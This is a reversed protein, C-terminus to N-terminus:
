QWKSRKDKKIKEYMQLDVVFLSQRLKFKTFSTLDVKTSSINTQTIPQNVNIRKIYKAPIHNKIKIEAMNCTSEFSLRKQQERTINIALDNVNYKIINSFMSKFSDMDWDQDIVRKVAPNSSDTAFFLSPYKYIVKADLEIIAIDKNNNKLFDSLLKQENKILFFSIYNQYQKSPTIGRINSLGIKGITSQSYLGHKLISEVSSLSTYHYITKLGIKNIEKKILKQM